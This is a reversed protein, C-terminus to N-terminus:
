GRRGAPFAERLLEGAVALQEPLRADIAGESTRVICGGRGVRREPRVDIAVRANKGSAGIWAGVLEVDDPHLEIAIGDLDSLRRLAGEVVECVLAPDAALAVGLVKEALALALEVARLEAAAVFEARAAALGEVTADLAARVDALAEDAAVLGAARGEAFGRERAAAEIGAAAVEAAAVLEAARSRSSEATSVLAGEDLQEFVFPQQTM